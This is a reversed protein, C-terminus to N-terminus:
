ADRLKRRRASLGIGFLGLGLLGLTAPEPVPVGNATTVELISSGVWFDGTPLLTVGLTGNTNLGSLSNIGVEGIYPGNNPNFIFEGDQFDIIGVIISTIEGVCGLFGCFDYEDDSMEITLVASLASGLTFGELTHTWSFSPYGLIGSVTQNIPEVDVIVDAKAGSSFALMLSVGAASILKGFHKRM